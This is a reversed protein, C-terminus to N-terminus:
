WELGVGALRQRLLPLHCVSVSGDTHSWALSEGDPGFLPALATMTEIGLLIQPSSDGRQYLAYGRKETGQDRSGLQIAGADLGLCAPFPKVEGRVQGSAVEVLVGEDKRNDTQAALMRGGPELVITPSLETRTSALSWRERGTVAEYAKIIRRQGNGTNAIGEAIFLHSDHAAVVTLLQRNFDAITALPKLPTPGLLNRLRCVRPGAPHPADEAEEDREERFLFLGETPPFTLADKGGKPVQWAGLEQGSTVNWLKVDEGASCALREGAADFALAAKEMDGRPATLRFRLQGTRVDWLAIQYTQSLAALWRGDASYCLRTAQTTLGRLTQIGRGDELEWLSVFGPNKSGVALRRGDPAFALTCVVGNTHLSLLARGTSADWLRAPGRGGSALLTGDPNFALCYIDGRSGRGYTVPLRSQLDWVTVTGASDGVALRQSDPSFTL